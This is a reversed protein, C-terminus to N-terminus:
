IWCKKILKVWIIRLHPMYRSIHYTGSDLLAALFTSYNKVAVLLLSKLAIGSSLHGILLSCLKPSFYNSYLNTQKM